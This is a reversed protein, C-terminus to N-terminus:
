RKNQDIILQYNKILRQYHSEESFNDMAFKKAEDSMRAYEEESISCAKTITEKLDDSSKPKFTYGTKNEIILEPIGGLDSGIVPTGIMYSEIITMPNNEYCESSVVVFSANHILERLEEGQKFGLFEANPPCQPKLQELLPGTGALKLKIDPVQKIANLLTLIGKEESIRGFFFIYDGKTSSYDEVKPTFNYLYTCKDKFRNEVQIHKNMSFKSVFIFRNIYDIPSYFKSRFYSDMSLMFSNILSGKSCKHTICNYYNGTKCRECFNRKGDTFTYAPCVLRYDHVSMIIPINYKKLVPLISVSMSNFM